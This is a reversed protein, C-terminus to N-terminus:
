VNCVAIWSVGVSVFFVFKLELIYWFLFAKWIVFDWFRGFNINWFVKGVVLNVCCLDDIGFNLIFNYIQIYIYIYIYLM